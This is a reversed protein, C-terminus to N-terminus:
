GSETTEPDDQANQASDSGGEPATADPTITASVLRGDVLRTRDAVPATSSDAYLERVDRPKHQEPELADLKKLAAFAHRRTPVQDYATWELAERLLKVHAEAQEARATAAKTAEAWGKASLEAAREVEALRARLCDACELGDECDICAMVRGGDM